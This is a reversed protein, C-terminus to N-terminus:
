LIMKIKSTKLQENISREEPRQYNSYLTKNAMIASTFPKKALLKGTM